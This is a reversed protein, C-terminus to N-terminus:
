YILLGSVSIVKKGAIPTSDLYIYSKTASIDGFRLKSFEPNKICLTSHANFLAKQNQKHSKVTRNKKM